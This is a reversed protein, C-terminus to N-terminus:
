RSRPPGRSRGERYTPIVRRAPARRSTPPAHACAGCNRTSRRPLVRAPHAATSRAPTAPTTDATSSPRHHRAGLQPILAQVLRCAPDNIRIQRGKGPSENARWRDASPDQGPDAAPEAVRRIRAQRASQGRDRRSLSRDLTRRDARSRPPARLLAQRPCWGGPLARPQKDGTRQHAQSPQARHQPSGAAADASTPTLPQQHEARQSGQPQRARRPVSARRSRGDTETAGQRDSARPPPPM